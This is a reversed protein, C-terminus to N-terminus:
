NIDCVTSRENWLTQKCCCLSTETEILKVKDENISRNEKMEESMVKHAIKIM